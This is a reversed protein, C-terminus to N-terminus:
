FEVTVELKDLVLVPKLRKKKTKPDKERVLKVFGARELLNVDQRVAKFDRGLMKALKYLSVPKKNRIVALIRAKEDSLLQRLEKVGFGHGSGVGALGPAIKPLNPEVPLPQLQFPKLMPIFFREVLKGEKETIPEEDLKGLGRTGIRVLIKKIRAKKAM